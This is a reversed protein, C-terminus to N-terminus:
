EFGLTARASCAFAYGTSSGKLDTANLGGPLQAWGKGSFYGSSDYMIKFISWQAVNLRPSMTTVVLTGALAGFATSDVPITFTTASTPTATWTGIIATWSGTGGTIKITPTVTAGLNTWDGFQHTSTFSVPNANSAASVTVTSTRNSKGSCVYSTLGAVNYAITQYGVDPSGQSVNVPAGDQGLAAIACLVAIVFTKM